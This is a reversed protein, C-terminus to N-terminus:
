LMRELADKGRMGAYIGLERAKSTTEVVVGNLVDEFTAVGKVKAAVVGLKEAASIDLYGCMVFGKEARLVILPAGPLEISYCDVEGNDIKVREHILKSM